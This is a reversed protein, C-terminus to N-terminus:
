AGGGKLLRSGSPGGGCEASELVCVSALSALSVNVSWAIRLSPYGAEVSAGHSDPVERLLGQATSGGGGYDGSHRRRCGFQDHAENRILMRLWGRFRLEPNYQFQRLKSFLKVIVDQTLEEVEGPILCEERCVRGLHCSLESEVVGVARHGEDM